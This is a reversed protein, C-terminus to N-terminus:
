EVVEAEIVPPPPKPKPRPVVARIIWEDSSHAPRSDPDLHLEDYASALANSDTLGSFGSVAWVEDAGVVVAARVEIGATIEARPCDNWLAVPDEVCDATPGCADCQYCEVWADDEVLFVNSCGCFPCPKLDSM